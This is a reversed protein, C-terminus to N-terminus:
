ALAHRRQLQGVLTALDRVPKELELFSALEACIYEKSHRRRVAAPEQTLFTRSFHSMSNTVSEISAALRGQNQTNKAWSWADSHEIENNIEAATAKASLLAKRLKLADPWAKDFKGDGEDKPTAKEQEDKARPMKKCKSNPAQVSSAAAADQVAEKDEGPQPAAVAGVCGCSFERRFESWSELFEERWSYELKLFLLRGTQPHVRTWPEGMALCRKMLRICGQVGERDDWGGEDAVLKSVTVYNGHTTDIRSWSKKHSREDKFVKHQAEVWKLRFAAAADRSLAAYEDGATTGKQHAKRFAGGLSSRPDLTGLRLAEEMGRLRKQENTTLPRAAPLHLQAEAAAADKVKLLEAEHVHLAEKTLPRGLLHCEKEEGEQLLAQVSSHGDFPGGFEDDDKGVMSKDTSCAATSCTEVDIMTGLLCAQGPPISDVSEGRELNGVVSAGDVSDPESPRKDAKDFYDPIGYKKADPGAEAPFALPRKARALSAPKAYSPM